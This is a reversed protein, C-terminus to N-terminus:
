CVESTSKDRFDWVISEVVVFFGVQDVFWVQVYKEEVKLEQYLRSAVGFGWFKDDVNAKSQIDLRKDDIWSKHRFLPRGYM